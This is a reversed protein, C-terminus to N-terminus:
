AGQASPLRSVLRLSVTLGELQYHPRLYFTSTYYGPNGEVDEVTVEAAALPKRAKSAESSNAPDGDVYNMVWDTLWGQMQERTSFSGIKDRVICKLYHAFRCCAFMYPLRASLAANATADPDDYEEPRALSQAGIFAAMDSNKRHVVPMLGMKDLEASRRDTIAIETPCKMDVGGDDTPFTHTPLGEVAGGSEVGRIRTCWGYLKFSRNINVAMAYAANQWTYRSSDAGETDEEFDFEEVPDSKAGYPLRSLTRPMTLAIYKADESDRLSRWAAYDPTTFIKALDRPNSLENWNEMGMLASGAAGIFPAHAAAAIQGIGRLMEVDQPSHDFYYDGILCGYPEGGLQGYEEEYVKKFVPSQDWATGKYRKLNKGLVSKSVNLVRIKLLPDTETNSVLYHLGRWAGELAQFQPAHLIQNVQESLKRDIEAVYANITQTLDDSVIYSRDLVQEALTRVAARVEEAARETRPRFERNLLAAFDGGAAEQSAAEAVAAQSSHKAM